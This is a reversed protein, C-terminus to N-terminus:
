RIDRRQICLNCMTPSMYSLPGPASIIDESCETTIISNVIESYYDQKNDGDSPINLLEDLIYAYDGPMANRVETRTYKSAIYRCVDVLRYITIRYIDDMDDNEDRLMRLKKEPYYILTALKAREKETITNGLKEDIKKRIVGSGNKLIHTFAEYEGHIDSMFHETGKPLNLLANLKIIEASAKAIDPYEKALLKLFKNDNIHM